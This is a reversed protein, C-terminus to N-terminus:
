TAYFAPTQYDVEDFPGNMLLSNEHDMPKNSPTFSEKRFFLLYIVVIILLIKLM